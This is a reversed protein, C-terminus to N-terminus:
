KKKPKAGSPTNKRFSKAKQSATMKNTKSNTNTSKSPAAYSRPDKRAAVRAASNPGLLDGRKSVGKSQQQGGGRTTYATNLFTKVKAKGRAEQTDASGSGRGSLSRGLRALDAQQEAVTKVKKKSAM